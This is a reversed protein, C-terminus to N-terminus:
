MILQSILLIISVFSEFINNIIMLRIYIKNIINDLNEFM